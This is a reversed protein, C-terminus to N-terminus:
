DETSKNSCLVDVFTGWGIGDQAPWLVEFMDKESEKLKKKGTNHVEM